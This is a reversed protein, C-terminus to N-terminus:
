TRSKKTKSRTPKPAPPPDPVPQEDDEYVFKKVIINEPRVDNLPIDANLVNGMTDLPLKQRAIPTLMFCRRHLPDRHCVKASPALAGRKPVVTNPHRKPKPPTNDLYVTTALGRDWKVRRENKTDSIEGQDDDVRTRKAPREREPTEYDETEGPGRQHRLPVGEEVKEAKEVSAMSVDGDGSPEINEAVVDSGASRRARREAREKRQQVREEKQRELSTRVKTTPSDPRKGEKMIVEMQIEAVQKQNRQTNNTTLSKLALATMSSFASNDTLVITRRRSHPPRPPAVTGFVDTLGSTPKRARTTRRLGQSSADPESSVQNDVVSSVPSPPRIPQAIELAESVPPPTPQPLELQPIDTTDSPAEM